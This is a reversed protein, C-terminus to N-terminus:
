FDGSGRCSHRRESSRAAHDWQKWLFISIQGPVLSSSSRGIKVQPGTQYISANPSSERCFPLKIFENLVAKVYCGTTVEETIFKLHLFTRISVNPLWNSFHLWSSWPRPWRTKQVNSSTLSLTMRFHILNNEHNKLNGVQTIFLVKAPSDFEESADKSRQTKFHM